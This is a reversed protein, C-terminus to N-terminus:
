KFNAVSDYSSSGRSLHCVCKMQSETTKSEQFLLCSDEMIMSSSLSANGVVLLLDETWWKQLIAADYCVLMIKAMLSEM